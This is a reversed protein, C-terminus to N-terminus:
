EEVELINEEEMEVDTETDDYDEYNCDTNNYDVVEDNNKPSHMKDYGQKVLENHKDCFTEFFAKLLYGLVASIVVTCVTQSLSEVIKYDGNLAAYTALVYSWTIWLIACSTIIAILFKTYTWIKEDRTKKRFGFM